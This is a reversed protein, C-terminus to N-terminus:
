EEEDHNNMSADDGEEALGKIYEFPTVYALGQAELWERWPLADPAATLAPRQPYAMSRADTVRRHLESVTPPFPSGTRLYASAADKVEDLTFTALEDYMAIWQTETWDTARPWRNVIWSRLTLFDHRTMRPGM